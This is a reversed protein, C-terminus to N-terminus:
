SSKDTKRKKRPKFMAKALNEPTDPIREFHRKSFKGTAGSREQNKKKDAKENKM